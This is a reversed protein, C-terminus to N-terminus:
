EMHMFCRTYWVLSDYKADVGISSSQRIEHLEAAAERMNMRDGPAQCTCSLAVEVLALLCQLAGNGKELNARACNQYEELLYAHVIDLIQDAFNTECFNIISRGNCFLPDTPRKGTLMEM